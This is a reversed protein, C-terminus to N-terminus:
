VTNLKAEMIELRGTRAALKGHRWGVIAVVELVYPAAKSVGTGLYNPACRSRNQELM